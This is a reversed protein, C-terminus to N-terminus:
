PAPGEPSALWQSASRCRRCEDFVANIGFGVALGTNSVHSNTKTRRRGTSTALSVDPDIEYFGSLDGSGCDMMVTQKSAFLAKAEEYVTGLFNEQYYPIWARMEEIVTVLDPENLKREGAVVANFGELGLVSSRSRHLQLLDAARNSRSRM